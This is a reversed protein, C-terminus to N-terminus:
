NCHLLVINSVSNYPRGALSIISFPLSRPTLVGFGRFLNNCFNDRIIADAIDGSVGFRNIKQSGFIKSMERSLVSCGIKVSNSVRYALRVFAIVNRSSSSCFLNWKGRNKRWFSACFSRSYANELWIPRRM